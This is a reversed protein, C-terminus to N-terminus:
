SQVTNSVATWGDIGAWRVHYWAFGNGEQTTLEILTVNCSGGPIKALLEGELMPASRLSSFGDSLNSRICVTPSPATTPTPSTAATRTTAPIVSQTESQTVTTPDNAVATNPTATDSQSLLAILGAIALGAVVILVPILAPQGKKAPQQLWENPPPTHVNPVPVTRMITRDANVSDPQSIPPPPPPPPPPPSIGMVTADPEPGNDTSVTDGVSASGARMVTTTDRRRVSRVHETPAVALLEHSFKELDGPRQKPDVSLASEILAALKSPVEPATQALPPFSGRRIADLVGSLSRGAFPQDGSVIEYGLVGLSFTDCAPTHVANDLLEPASYGITGVLNGTATMRSRDDGGVIGLDSLFPQGDASLLVNSPKVDRHVLGHSHMASLASSVAALVNVSQGVTLAGQSAMVDTVSGGACYAMVFYPTGETEGFDYVSVIHPHHLESLVQAERRLRAAFEADMSALVKLAVLRQLGEQRALYVVGMGGRGLEEVIEYQGLRKGIM